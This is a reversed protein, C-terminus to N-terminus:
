AREKACRIEHMVKAMTDSRLDSQQVVSRRLALGLETSEIACHLNAVVKADDQQSFPRLM